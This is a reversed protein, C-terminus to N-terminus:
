CSETSNPQICEFDSFEDCMDYSDENESETKMRDLLDVIVDIEPVIRLRLQISMALLYLKIKTARDIPISFAVTIMKLPLVKDEREILEEKVLRMKEILGPFTYIVLSRFSERKANLNKMDSEYWQDANM